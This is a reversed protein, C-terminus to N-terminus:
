TGLVQIPFVPQVTQADLLVEFLDGDDNNVLIRDAILVPDALVDDDIPTVTVWLSLGTAPELAHVTGNRAVVLLSGDVLLPRARIEDEADYPAAWIPLGNGRDWAWVKGSLDAAYVVDDVILATAWIWNGSPASWVALGTEVDIAYMNQDFSGVYAVGDEVVVNAAISSDTDSFEWALRSAGADAATRIAYLHGDMAPVVILRGFTESDALAPTGWIEGGFADYTWIAVEPQNVDVAYLHKDTTSIYAISGDVLIGAIISSETDFIMRASTGDARIAYVVGDEESGVLFEEPPSGVPTPPGYFAEANVEDGLGPFLNEEGPFRWIEELGDIDIASIEDDGNRVLVVTTEGNPLEVPPAWGTTGTVGRCAAILPLALILLALAWRHKVHFM